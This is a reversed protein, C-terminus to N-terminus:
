RKKMEFDIMQGIVNEITETPCWGLISQIKRYDGISRFKEAPRILTNSQRVVTESDTTIGLYQLASNLLQLVTTERGTAIVFDEPTEHSLIGVIAKVSDRASGWDRSIELNGLEINHTLGKAYESAFLAIKKTLFGTQRYESEHNFLIGTSVFLGSDRMSKALQHAKAKSVGYPSIPQLETKESQYEDKSNGFMESSSAQFIRMETMQLERAAFVLNEFYGYNVHETLVPENFSRMVSSIGALNIVARPRIKKFLETFSEFSYNFNEILQFNPNRLLVSKRSTEILSHSLGILNVASNMYFESLLLSDQSSAGTVVITQAM